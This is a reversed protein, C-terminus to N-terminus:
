WMAVIPGLSWKAALCLDMIPMTAICQTVTNQQFSVYTDVKQLGAEAMVDELPPYFWGRYPEKGPKRGTLRRVVGHHFRGMVRQTRPTLVWTDSKYLLVLQVVALYIQGSTWAYTGESILVRNLRAWKKRSSWLNCVM